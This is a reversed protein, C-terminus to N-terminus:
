LAANVSFRHKQVATWDWFQNLKLVLGPGYLVDNCSTRTNDKIDPGSTAQSLPEHQINSLIVGSTIGCAPSSLEPHKEEVGASTVVM